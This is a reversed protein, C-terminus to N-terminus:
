KPVLNFTRVVETIADAQTEFRGGHDRWACGDPKFYIHHERGMRRVLIKSQHTGAGQVRAEIMGSNIVEWYRKSM